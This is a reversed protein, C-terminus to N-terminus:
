SAAPPSASSKSRKVALVFLYIAGIVSVIMVVWNMPIYWDNGAKRWEDPMGRVFLDFFCYAALAVLGLGFAMLPGPGYPKGAPAEPPSGANPNDAM